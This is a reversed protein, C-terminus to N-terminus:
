NTGNNRRMLGLLCEIIFIVFSLMLGIFWLIWYCDFNELVLPKYKSEFFMWRKVSEAQMIEETSDRLWKELLGTEQCQLIVRSVAEEYPTYFPMFLVMPIRIMTYRLMRVLPRSFFMQQRLLRDAKDDPMLNGFETNYTERYKNAEHYPIPRFQHRFRDSDIAFQLFLWDNENVLITLNAEVVEEPTEIQKEYIKTTYFSTLVSQYVNNMIVGFVVSLLFIVRSQWSIRQYDMTPIIAIIVGISSVFAEMFSVHRGSIRTLFFYVVVLIVVSCLLLVWVSEEFPLVIYLSVKVPKATPVLVVMKMQNTPYSCSVDTSICPFQNMLLDVKGEAALTILSLGYVFDLDGIDIVLLTGNHKKLFALFIKATYGGLVEKGERNTYKFSRPLEKSIISRIPYGQLNGLRDDYLHNWNTVKFVKMKPFPNYSFVQLSGQSAQHIAVVRLIGTKWFWKFTDEMCIEDVMEEKELEVLLVKGHRAMHKAYLLITEPALVSCSRMYVIFLVNSNLFPEAKEESTDVLFILPTKLKAFNLDPFGGSSPSTVAVSHFQTNSEVNLIFNLISDHNCQINNIVRSLVITKILTLVFNTMEFTTDLGPYCPLLFGVKSHM